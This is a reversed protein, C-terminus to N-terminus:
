LLLIIFYVFDCDLVFMVWLFLCDWGVWCRLVVFGFVAILVLLGCFLRLIIFVMWGCFCVWDFGLGLVTYILTIIM